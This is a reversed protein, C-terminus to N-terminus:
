YVVINCEQIARLRASIDHEKRLVMSREKTGCILRQLVWILLKLAATEIKRWRPVSKATSRM